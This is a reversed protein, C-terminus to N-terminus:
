IGPEKIPLAEYEAILTKITQNDTIDSATQGNGDKLQTDVGNDLLVQICDIHEYLSAM